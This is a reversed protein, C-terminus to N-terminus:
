ARDVLVNRESDPLARELARPALRAPGCGPEVTCKASCGDGAAAAGDDCEELWHWRGDGGLVVQRIPCLFRRARACVCVLARVCVCM